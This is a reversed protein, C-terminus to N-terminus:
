ERKQTQYKVYEGTVWYIASSYLQDRVKKLSQKQAKCTAKDICHNKFLLNSFSKIRRFRKVLTYQFFLFRHRAAGTFGARVM